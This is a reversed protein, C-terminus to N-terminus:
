GKDLDELEKRIMAALDENGAAVALSLAKEFDKRAEDMRNLAKNALGRNNYAFVFDPVLEIAQDYDAIAEEHRGLEGKANGRGVYAEAYEPKLQIAQDYDAIASEHQSLGGKATGRGVYAEVLDPKLHIAENYDAIASEHQSLGGKAAGRNNYAEALDPKLEIAKTYANIAAQVDNKQQNLYGVSFWAQAALKTDSGTAVTAIARWKEIAEDIKGQQQLTGAAAIAKDELSAELNEQVSKVAEGVKDPNKGFLEANMTEVISKSEKRHAKIDQLIRNAEAEIERFRKFGLYGGIVAVIGLLTLFIATAQLWWDITSGRDDLWERRLRNEIEGLTVADPYIIAAAPMSPEPKVGKSPLNENAAATQDDTFTGKPEAFLPTSTMLMAAFVLAVVVMCAIHGTGCRYLTRQAPIM